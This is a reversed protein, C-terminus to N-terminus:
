NVLCPISIRLIDVEVAPQYRRIFPLNNTLSNSYDMCFYYLLKDIYDIEVHM